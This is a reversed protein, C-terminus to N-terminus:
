TLPRIYGSIPIPALIIWHFLTMELLLSLSLSFFHDCGFKFHMFPLYLYFLLICESHRLILISGAVAKSKLADM